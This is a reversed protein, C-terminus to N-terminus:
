RTFAFEDEPVLSEILDKAESLEMSTQGRILKIAAVKGKTKATKIAAVRWPTVEMAEVLARPNTKAIKICLERFDTNPNTIIDIAAAYYISM